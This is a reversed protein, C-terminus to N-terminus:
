YGTRLQLTIINFILNHLWFASGEFLPDFLADFIRWFLPWFTVDKLKCNCQSFTSKKLSVFPSALLLIYLVFTTFDITKISFFLPVCLESGRFLDCFKSVIEWKIQCKSLSCGHIVYDLNPTKQGGKHNSETSFTIM